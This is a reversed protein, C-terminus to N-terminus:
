FIGGLFIRHILPTKGEAPRSAEAKNPWIHHSTNSPSRHHPGGISPGRSQHNLPQKPLFQYLWLNHVLAGFQFVGNGFRVLKAILRSEPNMTPTAPPNGFPHAIDPHTIIKKSLPFCTSVFKNPKVKLNNNRPFRLDEDLNWFSPKLVTKKKTVQLIQLWTTKTKEGGKKFILYQIKVSTESMLVQTSLHHNFEWLIDVEATRPQHNLEHWHLPPSFDQSLYIYSISIYQIVTHWMNRYNLQWVQIGHFPPLLYAKHHPKPPKEIQIILTAGRLYVADKHVHVIARVRLQCGSNRWAASCCFSLVDTGHRHGITERCFRCGCALIDVPLLSDHATADLIM